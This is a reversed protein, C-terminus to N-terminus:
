IEINFYSNVKEMDLHCFPVNKYQEIENITINGLDKHRKDYRKIIKLITKLDKNKSYQVVLGDSGICITKFKLNILERQVELTDDNLVFYCRLKKHKNLLKGIYSIVRKGFKYKM